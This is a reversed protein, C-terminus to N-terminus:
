VCEDVVVGVVLQGGAGWLDVCFAGSDASVAMLKCAFYCVLCSMGNESGFDLFVELTM